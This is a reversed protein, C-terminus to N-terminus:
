TVWCNFPKDIVKAFSVNETNSPKHQDVYEGDSQKGQMDSHACNNM